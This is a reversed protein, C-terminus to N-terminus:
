LPPVLMGTIKELFSMRIPHMTIGLGPPRCAVAPETVGSAPTHAHSDLVDDMPQVKQTPNCRAATAPRTLQSPMAAYTPPSPRATANIAM